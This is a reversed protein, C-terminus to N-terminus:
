MVFYIAIGVIWLRMKRLALPREGATRSGPNTCTFNQPRRTNLVSAPWLRHRARLQSRGTGVLRSGRDAFRPVTTRCRTMCRRMTQRMPVRSLGTEPVRVWIDSHSQRACRLPRIGLM